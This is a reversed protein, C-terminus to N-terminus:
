SVASHEAKFLVCVSCGAKKLTKASSARLYPGPATPSELAVIVEPCLPATLQVCSSVVTRVVCVVSSLGCELMSIPAPCSSHLQPATSM